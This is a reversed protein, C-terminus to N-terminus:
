PKKRDAVRAPYVSTGPKLSRRSGRTYDRPLCANCTCVYRRVRKWSAFVSALHQQYVYTWSEIFLVANAEGSQLMIFEYFCQGRDLAERKSSSSGDDYCGSKVHALMSVVITFCRLTGKM